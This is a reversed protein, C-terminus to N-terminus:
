ASAKARLVRTSTQFSFSACNAETERNRREYRLGRRGGSRERAVHATRRERLEFTPLRPPQAEPMRVLIRLAVHKQNFRRCRHEDTEDCQDHHKEGVTGGVVQAGHTVAPNGLM